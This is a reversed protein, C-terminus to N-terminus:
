PAGRTAAPRGATEAMPERVVELTLGQEAIIRV